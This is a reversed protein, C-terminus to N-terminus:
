SSILTVAERGEFVEPVVHAESSQLDYVLLTYHTSTTRWTSGMVRMISPSHNLIIYKKKSKLHM